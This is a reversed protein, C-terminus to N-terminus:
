FAALVVRTLFGVSVALVVTALSIGIAQRKGLEHSLASYTALCPIYLSSVLAFIFIQNPDMISSLTASPDGTVMAALAVSLQLAIEKRLAAFLLAIGIIEPLGLIGSVVPRLPAVLYYMTETEYLFGVILSGLLMYPVAEQMFGSFKVWTRGIVAKLLPKRLPFMEMMIEQREGPLIRNLLVGVIGIVVLLIMGLGAAALWGSVAGVSGLIVAIRASCPILAILTSAIFRERGSALIRTGLVAQVNCGTGSIMPIIARGNLGLPRMVSDALYAAANLYGSDELVSLWLEFTFVYPIGVTLLAEIGSGFTWVFVRSLVGSGFLMNGLTAIHPVVLDGWLGGLAESLFGGVTYMYWFTFALVGLLIVPGWKRDISLRWLSLLWDGSKRGPRTVDAAIRSAAKVREIALPWAGSAKLDRKVAEVVPRVLESLNDGLLALTESDGEILLRATARLSLGGAGDPFERSIAKEVESIAREAEPSLRVPSAPRSAAALVIAQCLNGIGEGTQGNTVIVPVGLRSALRDPEVMRGLRRAEDELNLAVVVPVGLDAVEVYLQLNRRLNSADLVVVIVDPKPDTLGHRAVIQDESFGQLSYTGPTDVVTMVKDFAVSRGTSLAVTKGAYNATTVRSGTLHNFLSSKGVNPNGALAVLLDGDRAFPCASCSGGHCAPTGLHRCSGRRGCPVVQRWSEEESGFPERHTEWASGSRWKRRVQM